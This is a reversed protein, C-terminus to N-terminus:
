NGEGIKAGDLVRLVRAARARATKTPAMASVRRVEDRLHPLCADLGSGTVHAIQRTNPGHFVRVSYYRIVSGPKIVELTVAGQQVVAWLGGEKVVAGPFMRELQEKM